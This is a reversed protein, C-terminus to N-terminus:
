IKKKLYDYIKGSTADNDAVGRVILEKFGINSPNDGFLGGGGYNGITIGKISQTGVDGIWPIGENIQIKTEAGNRTIRLIVFDGELPIDYTIGSSKGSYIFYGNPNNFGGVLQFRDPVDGDFIVGGGNPYSILRFCMYLSLNTYPVEDKFTGVLGDDVGDFIIENNTKLPRRAIVDQTISASNGSLDTLAQVNSNTDFIGINYYNWMITNEYLESPITNLLSGPIVARTVAKTTANIYARIM